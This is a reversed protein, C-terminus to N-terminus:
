NMEGGKQFFNPLYIFFFRRAAAVADAIMTEVEKKSYTEEKISEKKKVTDKNEEM